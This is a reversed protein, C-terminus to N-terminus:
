RSSFPSHDRKSHAYLWYTMKRGDHSQEIPDFGKSLGFSRYTSVAAIRSALQNHLTSM